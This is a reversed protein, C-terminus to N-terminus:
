KKFYNFGAVFKGETFDKGSKVLHKALDRLWTAIDRRGAASMKGPNKITLTAAREAKQKKKKM